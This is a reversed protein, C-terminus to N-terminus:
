TRNLLYNGMNVLEETNGTIEQVLKLKEPSVSLENIWKSNISICPSVYPDTKM